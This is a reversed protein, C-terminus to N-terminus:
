CMEFMRTGKDVTNEVLEGNMIGHVYADGILEFRSGLPRLILAVNCGYLIVAIDDPKSYCPGIGMYNGTTATFFCRHTLSKQISAVFPATFLQKRELDSLEPNSSAPVSKDEFIVQAMHEFEDPAPCVEIFGARGRDMVLTRWFDEKSVCDRYLIALRQFVEDVGQSKAIDAITAGTDGPLKLVPLLPGVVEKLDTIYIGQAVMVQDGETFSIEPQTKGGAMFPDGTVMASLDRPENVIDPTWSPGLLNPGSRNGALIALDRDKAILFKVLNVLVQRVTITYDPPFGRDGETALGLLAYVKDRPDKAQFKQTVRILHFLPKNDDSLNCASLTQSMTLGPPHGFVLMSLLPEDIAGHRSCNGYLIILLILACACDYYKREVSAFGCVLMGSSKRLVGRVALEQIIWVRTWFPRQLFRWLANWNQSRSPFGLDEIYDAATQASGQLPIMIEEDDGFLSDEYNLAFEGLNKILGVAEDSDESAEGTWGIVIRAQTYIRTMLKVQQEREKLDAQNVSLADVWLIREADKQRLHRLATELNATALHEHGCLSIPKVISADGWVYSLADYAPQDDLCETRLDCRIPSEWVGAELILIRVLPLSAELPQYVTSM